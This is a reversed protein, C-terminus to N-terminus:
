LTLCFLVHDQHTTGGYAQSMKVSKNNSEMYAHLLKEYGANASKLLLREALLHALGKYNEGQKRAITKVIIQSPNYLDEVAFLFGVVTEINDNKEIVLDILDHKLYPLIPIYLKRFASKDIPTYLLNNAFAECCFQHLLDLDHKVDDANFNRVSLKPKDILWNLNRQNPVYKNLTEQFTFYNAYPKFGATRWQKVYYPLHIHELFFPPTKKTNFRYSYWTNGNMPGLLKKYGNLHAYQKVKKFLQKSVEEDDICQYNGLTLFGKGTKYLTVFALLENEDEVLIVTSVDKLNTLSPKVQNAYLHNILNQMQAVVRQGLKLDQCTYLNRKTKIEETINM